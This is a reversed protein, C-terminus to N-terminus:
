LKNELIFHKNFLWYGLCFWFPYFTASKVFVISLFCFITLLTLFRSNTYRVLFLRNIFIYKFIKILFISIFIFVTVGYFQWFSLINHQYAGFSSFRKVILEPDGFLAQKPFDIFSKNFIYMRQTFSEDESISATSVISLMRLVTDSSNSFLAAAFLLFLFLFFVSLAVKKYSGGLLWYINVAFYFLILNGRGGLSYLLFLCLLFIYFDYKKFVAMCLILLIAYSSGINLHNYLEDVGREISISYYPILFYENINIVILFALYFFLIFILYNIKILDKCFNLVVGIFFWIVGGVTFSLVNKYSLIDGSYNLFINQFSVSTLIFFLFLFIFFFEKIYFKKFFVYVGIAIISLLLSFGLLFNVFIPNLNFFFATIQYLNTIIFFFVASLSFFYLISEKKVELTNM